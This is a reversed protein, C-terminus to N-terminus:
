VRMTTLQLLYPDVLKTTDRKLFHRLPDNEPRRRRRPLGQQVRVPIGGGPRLADPPRPERLNGSPGHRIDGGHAAAAGAAEHVQHHQGDVLEGGAQALLGYPTLAAALQHLVPHPGDPLAAAGVGVQLDVGYGRRRGHGGGELGVLLDDLQLLFHPVAKVAGTEPPTGRLPAFDSM